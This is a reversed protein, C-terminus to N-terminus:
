LSLLWWKGESKAFRVSLRADDVAVEYEAQTEDQSVLRRKALWEALTPMDGASAGLAVSM